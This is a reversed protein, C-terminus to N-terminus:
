RILAVDGKQVHKTGRRGLTYTIYYSYTGVDAPTGNYTGDWGKSSSRGQYVRQGWRNYIDLTYNGNEYCEPSQPIPLFYDNLGDNNPSFANPLMLQCDCWESTIHITDSASCPPDSVIVWYTGTDQITLTPTNTGTSWHVSSGPPPAAEVIYHIPSEKCLVTDPGINQRLDRMSVHITDSNVCGDRSIQVWYTGSTTIDHTSDTSGDHWLYHVNNKAAKLTYSELNCITTDNGLTFEVDVTKVIFTDVRYHCYNNNRVWYTGPETITVQSTDVTGDNWEYWYSDFPAQLVLSEQNSCLLVEQSFYVSDAPFPLVFANNGIGNRLSNEGIPSIPIPDLPVAHEVLDCATGLQNPDNIRALYPQYNGNITDSPFTPLYIKGDPGLRLVPNGNGQGLSDEILVASSIIATQTPQTLDVQFVNDVLTYYLRSNDPSFCVSFPAGYFPMLFSDSVMMANSIVGTSPNFDMLEVGGFVDLGVGASNNITTAFALHERDPSGWMEGWKNSWDGLINGATSLVPGPNVGNLNIEYSKFVPFDRDHVILWINCDNGPIATMMGGLASDVPINKLGPVVDGLGNNLTMDVVSYVLKHSIPTWFFCVDMSGGLAFIYYRNPNDLVPLIIAGQSTNWSLSGEQSPSGGTVGGIFGNPMTNHDASWVSDTNTYFLLQGNKDAVAVYSESYSGDFTVSTPIVTPPTAGINFDLGTFPSFAWVSNEKLNWGYQAKALSFSFLLLASLLIQKM